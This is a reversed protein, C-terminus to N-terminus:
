EAKGRYSISLALYPNASFGRNRIAYLFDYTNFMLCFLPPSILIAWPVIRPQSKIDLVQQLAKWEWDDRVGNM